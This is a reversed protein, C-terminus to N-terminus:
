VRGGEALEHEEVFRIGFVEFHVGIGNEDTIAAKCSQRARNLVHSCCGLIWKHAVDAFPAVRAEIM